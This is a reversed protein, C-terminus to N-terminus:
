LGERRKAAAFLGRFEYPHKEILANVAANRARALAKMQGAQTNATRWAAMYERWAERCPECTEDGERRHRQYMGVTGHEFATRKAIM